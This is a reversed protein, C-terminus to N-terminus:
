PESDAESVPASVHHELFVGMSKMKEARGAVLEDGTLSELEALHRLVAEKVAKAAAVHNRHAGGLPESIVENM